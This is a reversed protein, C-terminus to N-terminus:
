FREHAATDAGPGRALERPGDHTCLEASALRVVRRVGILVLWLVRWPLGDYGRPIDGGRRLPGQPSNHSFYSWQKPFTSTHIYTKACHALTHTYM